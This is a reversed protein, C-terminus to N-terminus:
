YLALNVTLTGEIAARVGRAAGAHAVGDDAGRAVHSHTAGAGSSGTRGRVAAAAASVCTAGGQCWVLRVDCKCEYLALNVVLM